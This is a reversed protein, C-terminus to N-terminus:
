LSTDTLVPKATYIYRNNTSPISPFGVSFCKDVTKNQLYMNEQYVFGVFIFVKMM